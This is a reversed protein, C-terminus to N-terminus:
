DKIGHHVIQRDIFHITAAMEQAYDPECLKMAINVNKVLMAVMEDRAPVPLHHAKLYFPALDAFHEALMKIAEPDDKTLGQGYVEMLRCFATESGKILPVVDLHSSERRFDAAYSRLLLRPFGPNRHRASDVIKRGIQPDLRKVLVDVAMEVLGHSLELAVARPFNAPMAGIAVLAEAQAIVYGKGKGFTMGSHHATFDAGWTDNHCVFGYVLARQSHSHALRKQIQLCYPQNHTYSVLDADPLLGVLNNFIDPAMAGYM